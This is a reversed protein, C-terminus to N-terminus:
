SEKAAMGNILSRFFSRYKRKDLMYYFAGKKSKSREKRGTKLLLGSSLLKRSFNRKDFAKEFVREYLNQVLPLTFQEPLLEFLVPQFTAQAQLKSKASEVMREHDFILSPIKNLPVWEPHGAETLQQEYQHIDILAYFAISITREVPDRTPDGFTQLQEMYVGELGTLSKLVRSAAKEVGEGPQVFGGVLSWKGKEPEFSRRILLLKVHEGDFGFIICDVSVVYRAANLYRRTNLKRGKVTKTTVM